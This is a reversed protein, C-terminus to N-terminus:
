EYTFNPLDFIVSIQKLADRGMFETRDNRYTTVWLLQSNKILKFKYYLTASPDTGGKPTSYTCGVVYDPDAQRIVYCQYSKRENSELFDKLSGVRTIANEKDVINVDFPKTLMTQYSGAYDFPKKIFLLYQDRSLKTGAVDVMALILEDQGPASTLTFLIPEAGYTAPCSYSLILFDKERKLSVDCAHLPFNDFWADTSAVFETQDNGVYATIRSKSKIFQIPDIREANETAFSLPSSILIVVLSLVLRFM